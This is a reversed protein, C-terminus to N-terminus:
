DSMRLEPFCEHKFEGNENYYHKKGYWDFVTIYDDFIELIYKVNGNYFIDGCDEEWVIQFDKNLFFNLLEGHIFYGSKFKHISFLTHKDINIIQLLKSEEIDIIALDFEACIILLNDHVLVREHTLNIYCTAVTYVRNYKGSLIIQTLVSSQAREVFIANAIAQEGVLIKVDDKIITIDIATEEM